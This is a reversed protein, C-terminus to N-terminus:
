SDYTAIECDDVDAINPMEKSRALRSPPIMFKGPSLEVSCCKEPHSSYISQKNGMKPEGLMRFGHERAKGPLNTEPRHKGLINAGEQQESMESIEGTM